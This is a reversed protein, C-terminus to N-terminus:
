TNNITQHQIEEELGRVRALLDELLRAKASDTESGIMLELMRGKYDLLARPDSDDPRAEDLEQQRAMSTMGIQIAADQILNVIRLIIETQRGLERNPEPLPEGQPHM